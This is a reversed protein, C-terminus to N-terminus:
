FKVRMNVGYVDANTETAIARVNVDMKRWYAAASVGHGLDQQVGIGYVNITSDAGNAAGAIASDEHRAYDVAFGTAGMQYGVKAYAFFPDNAGTAGVADFYRKGLAATVSI